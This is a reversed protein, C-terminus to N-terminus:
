GEAAAARLNIVIADRSEGPVLAVALGHVADDEHMTLSMVKHARTLKALDAAAFKHTLGDCALLAAAHADGLAKDLAEATQFRHTVVTVPRGQVKLKRAVGFAASWRAAEATGHDDGDYVIVITVQDGVREGLNKDYALVRLMVLARRDDAPDAWARAHLVALTCVLLAIRRLVM